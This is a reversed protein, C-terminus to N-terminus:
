RSLVWSRDSCCPLPRWRLTALSVDNVSLVTSRLLKYLYIIWSNLPRIVYFALLCFVTVVDVVLASSRVRDCTAFSAIKM